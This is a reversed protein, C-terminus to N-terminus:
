ATAAYERLSLVAQLQANLVTEHNFGYLRIWPGASTGQILGPITAYAKRAADLLAPDGLLASARALAQAAVSQSLGSAWPPRGMGYPFAYEWYWRGGPQPIARAVLADALQRTGDANKAAALNDLMSFNALPHFEFGKGSFWRYVVGDPGTVDTGDAPIPHATLYDVNERLQSFLALARPGIYSDWITSVQALQSELAQRRLPPGFRAAREALYVDAHYAQADPAKIWGIRAARDIGRDALAGAATRAAAAGLPWALAVCAAVAFAAAPRRM